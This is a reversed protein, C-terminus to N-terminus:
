AATKRRALFWNALYFAVVGAFFSGWNIKPM